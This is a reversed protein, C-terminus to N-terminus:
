SMFRLGYLTGARAPLSNAEESLAGAGGAYVQSACLLTALVKWENSFIKFAKELDRMTPIIQFLSLSSSSCLSSIVAAGNVSPLKPAACFFIM